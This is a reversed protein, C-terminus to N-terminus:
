AIRAGARVGALAKLNAVGAEDRVATRVPDFKTKIPPQGVEIDLIKSIEGVRKGDMASISAIHLQRKDEHAKLRDANAELLWFTKIPLAMVEEFSLGYFRIVRCVLFGFDM